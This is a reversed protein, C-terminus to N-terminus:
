FPISKLPKRALDFGGLGGNASGMRCNEPFVQIETM